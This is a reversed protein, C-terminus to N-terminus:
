SSVLRRATSRCKLVERGTIWVLGYAIFAAAIPLIYAHGLFRLRGLRWGFNGIADRTILSTLLAAIGPVWMLLMHMFLNTKASTFMWVFVGATLVATIILFIIVEKLINKTKM